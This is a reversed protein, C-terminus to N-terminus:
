DENHRARKVPLPPAHREIPEPIESIRAACVEAVVARVQEADLTRAEHRLQEYSWRGALARRALEAGTPLRGLKVSLVERRTRDREKADPRQFVDYGAEPLEDAFRANVLDVFPIGYREAQRWLDRAVREAALSYSPQVVQAAAGNRPPYVDTWSLGVAALVQEPECGAFCHILPLDDRGLTVALTLGKSGHAPCKARHKGGTSRVGELRDLIVALDFM